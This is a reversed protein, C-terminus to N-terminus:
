TFVKIRLSGNPCTGKLPERKRRTGRTSDEQPGCGEKAHRLARTRQKGCSQESRPKAAKGEDRDCARRGAFCVTTHPGKVREGQVCSAPTYHMRVGGHTQRHSERTRTHLNEHANTSTQSHKTEPKPTPERIQEEYLPPNTANKRNTTMTLMPAQRYRLNRYDPPRNRFAKTQHLISRYFVSFM